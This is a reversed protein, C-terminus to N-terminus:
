DRQKRKDAYKGGCSVIFKDTLKSVTKSLELAKNVDAFQLYYIYSLACAIAFEVQCMRVEKHSEITEQISIILNKALRDKLSAHECEM